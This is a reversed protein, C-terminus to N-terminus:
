RTASTMEPIKTGITTPIATTAKKTLYKKTVGPSKASASPFSNKIGQPQLTNFRSV